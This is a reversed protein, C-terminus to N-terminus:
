ISIATLAAVASAPHGGFTHIDPFINLADRMDARFITAALPLYGATIAKAATMIDPEIDWDQVGFWEGMRGFGTIM